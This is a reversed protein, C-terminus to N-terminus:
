DGNGEGGESPNTPNDPDSPTDPNDPDEGGGPNPPPDDSPPIPDDESNNAAELAEVRAILSEIVQMMGDVVSAQARDSIVDLVEAKTAYTEAVEQKTALPEVAENVETKSAYGSLDIPQSSDGPVKYTGDDALFMAGGGTTTTIIDTTNAKSELATNLEEKTALPEIATALDEETVGGTSTGSSASVTKYTGDDALFKDGNGDTKTIIQNKNAKNALQNNMIETTPLARVYEAMEDVYSARARENIAATFEEKNVLHDGAQVLTVYKEDAAEATLYNSLDTEETIVTKYSGDNSLFMTGDGDTVVTTNLKADTSDIKKSLKELFVLTVPTITSM